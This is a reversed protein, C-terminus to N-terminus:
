GNQKEKFSEWCFESSTLLDFNPMELSHQGSKRSCLCKMTMYTLFDERKEYYISKTRIIQIDQQNKLIDQLVKDLQHENEECFYIPETFNIDPYIKRFTLNNYYLFSDYFPVCLKLEKDNWFKKLNKYDIRPYYYFGKTAAFSYLKILKKYGKNNKALIVFKCEEEQSEQNKNEIDPCIIIKLGCILNIKNKQCNSFAELFGAM